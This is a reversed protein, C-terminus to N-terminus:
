SAIKKNEYIYIGRKTLVALVNSDGCFAVVTEKFSYSYVMQLTNRDFVKIRCKSDDTVFLYGNLFLDQHRAFQKVDPQLFHNRNGLVFATASFDFNRYIALANGNPDSTLSTCIGNAILDEREFSFTDYSVEDRGTDVYEDRGPGGRDDTDIHEDRGNDVHEDLGPGDRNYGDRNYGGSEENIDKCGLKVKFIGFVSAVYVEGGKGTGSAKEIVSHINENCIKYKKIECSELNVKHLYGDMDGVLVSNRDNKCFSVATLESEFSLAKVARENYINVLSLTKGHAVLCLGDGFYSMKMCRVRSELAIFSYISFDEISYKFIGFQGNKLCSILIVQNIHDFLIESLDPFFHIKCYKKFSMHIILSNDIHNYVARNRKNNEKIIELQLKLQAVEGELVKRAENEKVYKEIMEKETDKEYAAIKVAFIPRLQSKKFPASCTPCYNKKYLSIWREICESGFLHGCKLSTVRHPGSTTYEGLCISCCSGPDDAM